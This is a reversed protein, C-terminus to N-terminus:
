RTAILLVLCVGACITLLIIHIVIFIVWRGSVIDRQCGCSHSVRTDEVQFLVCYHVGIINIVIDTFINFLTLAFFADCGAFIFVVFVVEVIVMFILDILLILVGACFYCYNDEDFVFVPVVRILGCWSCSCRIFLIYVSGGILIIFVDGGPHVVVRGGFSPMTM